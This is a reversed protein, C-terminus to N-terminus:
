LGAGGKCPPSEKTEVKGKIETPSIADISLAHIPGKLETQLVDNVLRHRQVLRKGKFMESVITVRIHSASGRPVNHRASENIVEIYEPKLADTLKKKVVNEVFDEASTTNTCLNKELIRPHFATRWKM